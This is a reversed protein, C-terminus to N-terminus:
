KILADLVRVLGVIAGVAGVIWITHRHIAQIRVRARTPLAIYIYHIDFEGRKAALELRVQKNL